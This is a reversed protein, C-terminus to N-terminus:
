IQNTYYLYSRAIGKESAKNAKKEPVFFFMCAYLYLHNPQLLSQGM